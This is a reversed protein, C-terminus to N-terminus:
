AAKRHLRREQTHRAIRLADLANLAPMFDLINEATNLQRRIDSALHEIVIERLDDPIAIGFLASDLEAIREARQSTFSGDSM